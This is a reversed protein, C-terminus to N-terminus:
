QQPPLIPCDNETVKFKDAQLYGTLLVKQFLGDSSIENTILYVISVTYQRSDTDEPRLYFYTIKEVLIGGNSKLDGVKVWVPLQIKGYNQSAKIEYGWLTAETDIPINTLLRNGPDATFNVAATTKILCFPVYKVIFTKTVPNAGNAAVTISVEQDATVKGTPVSIIPNTSDLQIEGPPLEVINEPSATITVALPDSLPAGNRIATIQLRVPDGNQVEPPDITAELQINQNAVIELTKVAPALEAVEATINVTGAGASPTYTASAKGDVLPIPGADITGLDASFQVTLTGEPTCVQNNADRLTAIVSVPQDPQLPAAVDEIVLAAPCTSQPLPPPATSPALAALVQDLKVDLDVLHQSQQQVAKALPEYRHNQLDKLWLILTILLVLTLFALVGTVLGPLPKPTPKPHPNILLDLSAGGAKRNLEYPDLEAVPNENTHIPKKKM